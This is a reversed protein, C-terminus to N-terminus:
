KRAGCAGHLLDVLRACNFPKDLLAVAGLRQATLRSHEDAFASMLIVPTELGQERVCALLEVGNKKPLRLDSVIGDFAQFALARLAQEASHVVKTEFDADRLIEALNDALEESDEVLLVHPRMVNM